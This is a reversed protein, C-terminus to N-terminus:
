YWWYGGYYPYYYGRYYYPRYGYYPYYGGYYPRYYGGYYYTRYGPYPYYGRYGWYRPWRVDQVQGQASYTSLVASQVSTDLTKAPIATGPDAWALSTTLGLTAMAALFIWLNRM